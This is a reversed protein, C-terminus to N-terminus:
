YNIILRHELCRLSLTSFHCLRVDGCIGMGNERHIFFSQPIGRVWLKIANTKKKKKMELWFLTFFCACDTSTGLVSNM